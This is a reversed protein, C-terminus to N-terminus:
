LSSRCKWQNFCDQHLYPGDQPKEEPTRQQNDPFTPHSTREQLSPCRQKTPEKQQTQFSNQSKLRGREFNDRGRTAGARIYRYLLGEPFWNLLTTGPLPPLPLFFVAKTFIAYGIVKLLCEYHTNLLRVSHGINVIGFFCTPLENNHLSHSMDTNCFTTFYTYCLIFSNIGSM